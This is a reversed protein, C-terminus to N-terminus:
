LRARVPLVWRVGRAAEPAATELAGYLALAGIDNDTAYEVLMRAKTVDSDLFWPVTELFADACGLREAVEAWHPALAAAWAALQRESWPQM